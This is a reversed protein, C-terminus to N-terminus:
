FIQSDVSFVPWGKKVLALTLYVLLILGSIRFDDHLYLVYFVEFIPDSFKKKQHSFCFDLFCLCFNTVPLINFLFREMNCSLLLIFKLHFFFTSLYLEIISYHTSIWEQYLVPTGRIRYCHGGETKVKVENRCRQLVLQSASVSKGPIGLVWVLSSTSLGNANRQMWRVSYTKVLHGMAM